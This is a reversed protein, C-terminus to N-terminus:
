LSQRQPTFALDFKDAKILDVAQSPKIFQFAVSDIVGAATLVIAGLSVRKM